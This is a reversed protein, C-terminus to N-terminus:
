GVWTMGLNLMVGLKWLTQFNSLINQCKGGIKTRSLTAQRGDPLVKQGCDDTKGTKWFVWWISSNQCKQNVKTWEFHLRLESQECYQIRSKRHNEVM